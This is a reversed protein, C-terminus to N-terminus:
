ARLSWGETADEGGGAGRGPWTDEHVALDLRLVDTPGHSVVPRAEDSESEELPRKQRRPDIVTETTEWARPSFAVQRLTKTHCGPFVGVPYQGWKKTARSGRCFPRLGLTDCM